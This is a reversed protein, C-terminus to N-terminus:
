ALSWSIIPGDEADDEQEILHNNKSIELNLYSVSLVGLEEFTKQKGKLLKIRETSM